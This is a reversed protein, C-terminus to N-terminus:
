LKFPNEDFAGKEVTSTSNPLKFNKIHNDRFADKRITKLTNGFDIESIENNKFASEGIEKVGGLIYLAQIRNRLFAGEEVTKVTGPVIIKTFLNDAFAYKGIKELNPSILASQIKNNYFAYDGITTITDPIYVKQFSKNSFAARGIKKLEIRKGTYDNYAYPLNLSKLNVSKSHGSISFGLITDNNYIFDEETWYKDRFKEGFANKSLRTGIDPLIIEELPNDAFAESQVNVFCEPITLRKIDNGAFAKRRIIELSEPLCVVKIKNHAFARRGIIELTDPLAFLTEIENNMFSDESIIKVGEPIEVKTFGYNAFARKGIKEIYCGDEYGSSEPIVLIHNKKSLEKGKESLGTVTDDDFTFCDIDWYDNDEIEGELEEEIDEESEEKSLDEDSFSDDIVCCGQNLDDVINAGIVAEISDTSSTEIELDEELDEEADNVPVIYEAEFDEIEADSWVRISMENENWHITDFDDDITYTPQVMVLDQLFYRNKDGIYISMEKFNDSKEAFISFKDNIPLEIFKPEECKEIINKAVFKLVDKSGNNDVLVMKNDYPFKEEEDEGKFGRAKRNELNTNIYVFVFNMDKLLEFEEETEIDTVVIDYGLTESEEIKREIYKVFVREDKGELFNKLDKILNEQVENEGLVETAISRLPDLFSLITFAREENLFEAFTRKGAGKRGLIAIKM